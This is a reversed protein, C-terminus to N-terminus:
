TQLPHLIQYATLAYTQLPHLTQYVVPAYFATAEGWNRAAEGALLQM